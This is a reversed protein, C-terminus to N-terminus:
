KAEIFSFLGVGDPRLSGVEYYQKACRAIGEMTDVVGVYGLGGKEVPLRARSDDVLPHITSLGITSPQLPVLLAPLPPIFSGVRRILTSPSSLMKHRTVYYTENINAIVSIITPSIPKFGYKAKGKSFHDVFYALALYCDPWTIPPGPDTITFAQGGVDPGSSDILRKEYLLHALACNEVNCQNLYSHESISVNNEGSAFYFDFVDAGPGYIANVPRLAGTRLLKSGSSGTPSKHASRVLREAALKTYSYLTAFDELNKPLTGRESENEGGAEQDGLMQVLRSRGHEVGFLNTFWPWQWPWMLQSGPMWHAVSGSSTAVLATAGIKRAADIINQTGLVNVKESMKLFIRHREHFRIIAATHIVTVEPVADQYGTEPWPAEFAAEVSDKDSIDVKVFQVEKAKGATLDKRVPPRVDLIRIKKPDEGRQLLQIVIWGGLFGSGGVIIYRRGTKPPTQVKKREEMTDVENGLNKVVRKFDDSTWRRPSLDLVSRPVHRVAKDNLWVYLILAVLIGYLIM